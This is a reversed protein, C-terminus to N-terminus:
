DNLHRLAWDQREKNSKFKPRQETKEVTKKAPPAAPAVSAKANTLNRTGSQQRQEESVKETSPKKEVQKTTDTKKKNKAKTAKEVVTEYHNEIAKAVQDLTKLDDADPKIVGAKADRELVKWILMEPKLGDLQESLEMLLPYKERVSEGNIQKNLLTSVFESGKQTRQSDESETNQNKKAESEAQRERKDRALAQRTRAAERTAKTAQELPVNLERATLDTYFGSLEEDVEKADEKVGLVTAVFKRYAKIPDDVYIREAEDLAKLRENMESRPRKRETELESLLQRNATVLRERDTRIEDYDSPKEDKVEEAKEETDEPKDEEGESAAEKHEDTDEDDVLTEKSPEKPAAKAPAAKKAPAKDILGVDDPDNSEEDDTAEDDPDDARELLKQTSEKLPKSRRPAGDVVTDEEIDTKSTRVARTSGAEVVEEIVQRRSLVGGGRVSQPGNGVVEDVVETEPM